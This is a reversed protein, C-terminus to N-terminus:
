PDEKLQKKVHYPKGLSQKKETMNKAYEKAFSIAEQLEMSNEELDFSCLYCFKVGKVIRTLMGELDEKCRLCFGLDIVKRKM